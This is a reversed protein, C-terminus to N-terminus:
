FQTLWVSQDPFCYVALSLERKTQPEPVTQMTVNASTASLRIRGRVATRARLTGSLFGLVPNVMETQLVSFPQDTVPLQFPPLKFAKGRPCPPHRFVQLRWTCVALSNKKIGLANYNVKHAVQQSMLFSRKVQLVYQHTGTERYVM